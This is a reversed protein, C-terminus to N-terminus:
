PERFQESTGGVIEAGSAAYVAKTEPERLAASLERNLYEIVAIPTNTPAGIRTWPEPHLM